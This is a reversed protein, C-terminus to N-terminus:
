LLLGAIELSRQHGSTARYSARLRHVSSCGFCRTSGDDDMWCGENKFPPMLFVRSFFKTGAAAGM